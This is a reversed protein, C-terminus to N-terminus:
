IRLHFFLKSPDVPRLFLLYVTLSGILLIQLKLPPYNFSWHYFVLSWIFMISDYQDFSYPGFFCYSSLGLSVFCFNRLKKLYRVLFQYSQALSPFWLFFDALCFLLFALFCSPFLFLSILTSRLNPSGCLCSFLTCSMLTTSSPFYWIM